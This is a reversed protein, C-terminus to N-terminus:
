RYGNAFNLHVSQALLYHPLPSPSPSAVSFSRITNHIKCIIFTYTLIMYLSEDGCEVASWQQPMALAMLILLIKESQRM